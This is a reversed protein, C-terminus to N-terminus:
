ASPPKAAHMEVIALIVGVSHMAEIEESTLRIGFAEELALVLQLHRLSDWNPITDPSSAADLSEEPMRLIAAVIQYVRESM